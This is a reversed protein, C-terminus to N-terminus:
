GTKAFSTWYRMILKSLEKQDSTYTRLTQDSLFPDGFGLFLDDMHKVGMWQPWSNPIYESLHYLYVDQGASSYVDALEAMPCVFHRQGMSDGLKNINVIKNDVEGWNSYEFMIANMVTDTTNSPHQPYHLHLNRLNKHLQENTMTTSELKIQDMFMYILFFSGENANSGLLMPCKKFKREKLMTKPDDPFFNGDIVPRLPCSVEIGDGKVLSQKQILIEPSTQRLVELAETESEKHKLGCHMALKVSRVKGEDAPLYAWSPTSAGSQLIANSFLNTSLPSLLHHNVSAAGASEGFITVRNADGGFNEINDQVWQLALIQDFLGMNGKIGAEPLYLFGFVGVRYTIAVVIIDNMAVLFRPDLGDLSPMGGCFGGGYIWVMVAKTGSSQPTWVDLYLCDESINTHPRWQASGPFTGFLTDVAQSCTNPFQTADYVDKWSEAPEPNLFRLKGTPPKAFPIGLYANVHQSDSAPFQVGQLRGKTTEVIGTKELGSTVMILLSVIFARHEIWACMTRTM